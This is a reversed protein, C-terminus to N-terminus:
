TFRYYSQSYLKDRCVPALEKKGSYWFHTKLLFNDYYIWIHLTHYLCLSFVSALTTKYLVWPRSNPVKIRSFSVESFLIPLKSFLRNQILFLLLVKTNEVSFIFQKWLETAPSNCHLHKLIDAAWKSPQCLSPRRPDGKVCQPLVSLSKGGCSRPVAASSFDILIEWSPPSAAATKIKRVAFQFSNEWFNRKCYLCKETSFLESPFNM